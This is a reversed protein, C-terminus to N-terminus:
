ILFHNINIHIRSTSKDFANCATLQEIIKHLDKLMSKESHKGSPSKVGTENDYVELFKSLIGISKGVRVIAKESKNSGLGALATQVLRNMHELQLCSINHGPLGHVNIFRSWKLQEALNHPLTVFYQTLLTHAEM